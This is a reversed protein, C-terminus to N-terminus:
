VNQRSPPIRKNIFYDFSHSSMEDRILPIKDTERDKSHRFILLLRILDAWYPDLDNLCGSDFQEGTRIRRESSIVTEIASWPEGNPMPGMMTQTSQWGENLFQQVRNFHKDYIHLSGVMHKYTGLEVFLTKALIEQLMTFCFIDHPMGIYADNSRMNTIMHLHNDRIMFQLTCTCPIDDDSETTDRADFLQIVARRSNPKRTLTDIVFAVQDVGKWNFMRPGYGGFYRNGDKVTGYHQLYYDIFSADDSKALYWCLEGICSFPKGKTDTRSVRAQPNTIEM